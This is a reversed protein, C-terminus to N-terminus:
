DSELWHAINIRVHRIALNFIDKFSEWNKDNQEQKWKEYADVAMAVEKDRTHLLDSNANSYLSEEDEELTTTSVTLLEDAIKKCNEHLITASNEKDFAPIEDFLEKITQNM